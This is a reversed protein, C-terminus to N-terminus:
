AIRRLIEVVNSIIINNNSYNWLAFENNIFYEMIIKERITRLEERNLKYLEIMYMASKQKDKSLSEKIKLKGDIKLEFYDLLDTKTPDIYELPSYPNTSRTTNCTRCAPLLNDWKLIKDPAISKLQIHEITIEGSFESVLKTCLACRSNTMDYFLSIVDSTKYQLSKKNKNKKYYEYANITSLGQIKNTFYADNNILDQPPQARNLKM